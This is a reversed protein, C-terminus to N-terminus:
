FSFLCARLCCKRRMWKWLTVAPLCSELELPMGIVKKNRVSDVMRLLLSKPFLVGREAAGLGDM